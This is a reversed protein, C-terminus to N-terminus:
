QLIINVYTHGDNLLMYPTEKIVSIDNTEAKVFFIGPEKLEEETFVAKGDTDTSVTAIADTNNTANDASKYITVTAGSLKNGDPDSVLVHLEPPTVSITDFVLDRECSAFFLILAVFVILKKM